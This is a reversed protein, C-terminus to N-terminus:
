LRSLREGLLGGLSQNGVGNITGGELDEVEAFGQQVAEPSALTSDRLADDDLVLGKAQILEVRGYRLVLPCPNLQPPQLTPFCRPQDSM